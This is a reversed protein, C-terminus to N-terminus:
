EVKEGYTDTSLIFVNRTQFARCIADDYVAKCLVRVAPKGQFREFVLAYDYHLKIRYKQHLEDIAAYVETHFDCKISCDSGDFEIDFEYTM